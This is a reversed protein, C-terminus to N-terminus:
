PLSNTWRSDFLLALSVVRLVRGLWSRGPIPKGFPSGYLVRGQIM